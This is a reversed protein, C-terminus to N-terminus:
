CNPDDQDPHSSTDVAALLFDCSLDPLLRSIRPAQETPSRLITEFGCSHSPGPFVGDPSRKICRDLRVQHCGGEQTFMSSQFRGCRLFMSAASAQGRGRLVGSQMSNDRYIGASGSVGDKCVTPCPPGAQSSNTNYSTSRRAEGQHEPSAPRTLGEMRPMVERGVAGPCPLGSSAGDPGAM